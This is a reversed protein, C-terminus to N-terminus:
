AAETIVATAKGTPSNTSPITTEPQAVKLNGSTDLASPLQAFKALGVADGNIVINPTPATGQGVDTNITGGLYASALTIPSVTVPDTDAILEITAGTGTVKILNGKFPVVLAPSGYALTWSERFRLGSATVTIGTGTSHGAIPDVVFALYGRASGVNLSLGGSPILYQSYQALQM